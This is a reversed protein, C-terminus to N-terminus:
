RLAVRIVLKLGSWDENIAAVKVDVLDLMLAADRVVVDGLDSVHGAAKRPWAAWLMGTPRIRDALGSLQSRFFALILDAPGADGPALWLVGDPADPVQWGEPAHLLQATTGPKLGLKKWLPTGSSEVM